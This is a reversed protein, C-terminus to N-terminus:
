RNNNYTAQKQYVLCNYGNRFLVRVKLIDIYKYIVCIYAIRNCNRISLLKTHGIEIGLVNIELLLQYFHVSPGAIRVSQLIVFCVQKLSPFLLTKSKKFVSSFFFLQTLKNIKM